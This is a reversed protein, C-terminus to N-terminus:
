PYSLVVTSKFLPDPLVPGRRRLESLPHGCHGM